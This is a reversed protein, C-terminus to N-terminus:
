VTVQEISQVVEDTLLITARALSMLWRLRQRAGLGVFLLLSGVAASEQEPTYDLM